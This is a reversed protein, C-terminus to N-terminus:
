GEEGDTVDEEVSEEDVTEVTEEAEANEDSADAEQAQTNSASSSVSGQEEKQPEADAANKKASVSTVVMIEELGSVTDNPAVVIKRIAQGNSDEVRVVTGVILGRFYGGGLGSTVIVDGVKVEVDADVDELYLLGDINGKLLGEARSSQIMVAVGSASDQLLRVDATVPTVSKVQGVLGSSGMVPLGPTIGDNAGKDITLVRNWSEGSVGIVRGTIGQIGYTDSLKQIGQLREAEQRYEELEAVMQRLEENQQKLESVTNPDASLDELTTQAASEASQIGAGATRIPSTVVGVASQVSHLPGGEGEV